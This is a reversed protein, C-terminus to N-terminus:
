TALYFKRRYHERMESMLECGISAKMDYTMPMMRAIRIKQRIRM